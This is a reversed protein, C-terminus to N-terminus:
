ASSPRNPRKAPIRVKLRHPTAPIKTIDILEAPVGM